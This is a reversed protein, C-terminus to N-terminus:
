CLFVNYEMVLKRQDPTEVADPIYVRVWDIAEEGSMGLLRRALLAAVMGTRGLGAFCHIAINKGDYALDVIKHLAGKLSDGEPIGFDPMAEQVVEFGEEQYMKRLDLGTRRLSEEDSTLMVIVSVHQRKIEEYAKDGFDFLGFPMPSRFIKGPLNYPLETISM